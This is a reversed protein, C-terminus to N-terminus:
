YINWIQMGKCYSAIWNGLVYYRILCDFKRTYYMAFYEAKRKNQFIINKSKSVNWGNNGAPIIELRTLM